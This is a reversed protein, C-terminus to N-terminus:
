VEIKGTGGFEEERGAGFGCNSIATFLFFPARTCLAKLVLPIYCQCYAAQPTRDTNFVFGLAVTCGWAMLEFIWVEPSNFDWLSRDGLYTM